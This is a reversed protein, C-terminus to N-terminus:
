NDLFRNVLTAAVKEVRRPGRFVNGRWALAVDSDNALGNKKIWRLAGEAQPWGAWGRGPRGARKDASTRIALRLTTGDPPAVPEPRVATAQKFAQGRFLPYGKPGRSKVLDASGDLFPRPDLGASEGSRYPGECMAFHLHWVGVAQGTTGIVQGATVREGHGVTVRTMHTLFCSYRDGEIGVKAGAFRGSGGGGVSKVVGGFPARVPMEGAAHLLDWGWSSQWNQGFAHTGGGPGWAREYQIGALPNVFTM